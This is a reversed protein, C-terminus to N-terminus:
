VCCNVIVGVENATDNDHGDDEWWCVRCIEFEGRSDLTCAGCCPCAALEPQDGFVGDCAHGHDRLLGALYENTAGDLQNRLNLLVVDDYRSNTPDIEAREAFERKVTPSIQEWGPVSEWDESMMCELLEVREELPLKVLHFQALTAIAADRGITGSM